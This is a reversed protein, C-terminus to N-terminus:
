GGPLRIAPDDRRARYLLAINGIRFVLEAGSGDCLAQLEAARRAHDGAPLRVKLLEHSQLAGDLEALLAPTVGQRGIRLLPRRGHGLARLFRRQAATLPERKM